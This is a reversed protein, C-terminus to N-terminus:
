GMPLITLAKKTSKGNANTVRLSWGLVDSGTMRILHITAVITHADQTEIPIMHATKQKVRHLTANNFGEGQITVKVSGPARVGKPQFSAIKPVADPDFNDIDIVENSVLTQNGDRIRLRWGPSPTAPLKFEVVISKGDARDVTEPAISQNDHFLDLAANDAIDKVRAIITLTSGPLAKAPADTGLLQPTRPPPPPPTGDTPAPTRRIANVLAIASQLHTAMESIASQVRASRFAAPYDDYDDAGPMMSGFLGNVRTLTPALVNQASDKGGNALFEFARTTSLEDIWQLLEAVTIPPDTHLELTLREAAGLFVSDLARYIEVVSEAIVSFVRQLRVIQTGFFVDTGSRDMSSRQAHWSLRLMDLYNVALHYKTLLREEAITNVNKQLLGLRDRLMGLLGEVDNPDQFPQHEDLDGFLLEFITDVRQPMPGGEAGFQDVLDTLHPLILAETAAVDEDDPAPVLASLEDLLTRVQTVITRTREYISLQPGTITGVGAEVAQPRYGRPKWTMVRHGSADIEIPFAQLLARRIGEADGPRVRWALVDSISALASGAAAPPASATGSSSPTSPLIEAWLPYPLDLVNTSDAM